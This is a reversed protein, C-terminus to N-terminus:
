DMTIVVKGASKRALLTGLAAAADELAFRHSVYPRIQGAALWGLLEEFSAAIRAPDISLYAGWYFGIVTVNKVLLINAPIKPVEGSAFGIIIIRGDPAVARLAAKFADGGIPDFHVDAGRGGTIQKIRERVDESGTDITFEAGKSKAVACKEAGRAAAIVRAGLRAGIEVATLGVGGAAGHVALWEGARLDGRGTLALHSTGYAVPFAAGTVDDVTGPLKWCNAALALAQEAFGGHGVMAAVRDGPKLAGAGPACQLVEGAIELGPTFPLDPKDQYSGRVMLTDAFNVGAARVRILVQGPTGDLAPEAVDNIHLNEMAGLESVVAARM